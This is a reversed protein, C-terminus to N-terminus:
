YVVVWIDSYEIINLIGMKLVDRVVRVYWRLNWILLFIWYWVM